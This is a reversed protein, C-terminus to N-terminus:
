WPFDGTNEEPVNEDEGLEYGPEAEEEMTKKHKKM